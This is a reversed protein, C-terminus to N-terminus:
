PGVGALDALAAADAGYREALEAVQRPHRPVRCDRLLALADRDCGLRACLAADDAGHRSRYADILPGLFEDADGAV